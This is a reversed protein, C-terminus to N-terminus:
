ERRFGLPHGQVIVEPMGIVVYLYYIPKSGTNKVEIELDRLWNKNKLDKAAKEKEAKIKIKIPLRESTLDEFKREKESQATSSEIGVACMVVLVGLLAVSLAILKSSHLNFVRHPKM